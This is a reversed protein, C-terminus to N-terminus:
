RICSVWVGFDPVWSFCARSIDSGLYLLYGLSGVYYIGDICGVPRHPIYLVVRCCRHISRFSVVGLISFGCVACSRYDVYRQLAGAVTEYGYCGHMVSLSSVDCALYCYCLGFIGTMLAKELDLVLLSVVAAGIVMGHGVCSEDQPMLGDWLRHCASYGLTCRWIMEDVHDDFTFQHVYRM